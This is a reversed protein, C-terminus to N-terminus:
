SFLRPQYDTLPESTIRGKRDRRLQLRRLQEYHQTSFPAPPVMQCAMLVRRLAKGLANLHEMLYLRIDTAVQDNRSRGTHLKGALPGVLEGLRREVATHIDEDTPAFEFERREFEGAVQRLGTALDDKEQETLWGARCLAQAYAISGKIDVEALRKDFGISANFDWMLDDTAGSYRGGWLKGM